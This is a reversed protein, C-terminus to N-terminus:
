AAGLKTQTTQRERKKETTEEHAKLGKLVATLSAAGVGATGRPTNQRACSRSNDSM